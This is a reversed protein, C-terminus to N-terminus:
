RVQNLNKALRQYEFLLEKETQSMGTMSLFDENLHQEPAVHEINEEAM